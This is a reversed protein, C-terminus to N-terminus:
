VAGDDQRLRRIGGIRGRDRREDGLQVTVDVWRLEDLVGRALHLIQRSVLAGAVAVRGGETAKPTASPHCM